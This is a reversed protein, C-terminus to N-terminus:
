TSPSTRSLGGPGCHLGTPSVSCAASGSMMSPSIRSTSYRLIASTASAVAMLYLAVLPNPTISIAVSYAFSRSSRCRMTM